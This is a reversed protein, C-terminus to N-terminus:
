LDKTLQQWRLFLCTAAFPDVFAPEVQPMGGPVVIIAYLLRMAPDPDHLASETHKIYLAPPM